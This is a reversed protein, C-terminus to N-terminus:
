CKGDQVFASCSKLVELEQVANDLLGSKENLAKQLLASKKEAARKQRVQLVLFEMARRHVAVSEAYLQETM